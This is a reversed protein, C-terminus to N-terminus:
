SAANVALLHLWTRPDSRTAVVEQVAFGNQTFLHCLEDSQYRAFFRQVSLGPADEWGEGDGQQFTALLTGGDVLVRRVEALAEVLARKPLHLLAANCWVAAFTDDDFGLARLEMQLLPGRVRGRAEALMGRSLDVGVVRCGRQEFWALDRGTGCGLDLLRTGAGVRERVREAWPLLDAPFDANRVAFQPAIRDYAAQMRRVLPRDEVLM